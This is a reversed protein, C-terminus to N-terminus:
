ERTIQALMRCAAEHLLTPTVADPHDVWDRDVASAAAVLETWLLDGFAAMHDAVASAIVRADTSSRFIGTVVDSILAEYVAISSSEGAGVALRATALSRVALLADARRRQAGPDPVAM